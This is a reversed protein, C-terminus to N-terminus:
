FGRFVGEADAAQAFEFWDMNAIELNAAVNGVESAVVRLEETGNTALVPHGPSTLTREDLVLFIAGPDVAVLDPVTAGDWREHDVVAETTVDGEPTRSQVAALAADWGQPHAFDTRVIVTGWGVPIDGAENVVPEPTWGNAEAVERLRDNQEQEWDVDTPLNALRDQEARLMREYDEPDTPVGTEITIFVEGEEGPGPSPSGCATQTLLLLIVPLARVPERYLSATV